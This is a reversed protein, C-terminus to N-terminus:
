PFLRLGSCLADRTEGGRRSMQVECGDEKGMECLQGCGGAREGVQGWEGRRRGRGCGMGAMSGLFAVDCRAHLGVRRAAHHPAAAPNTPTYRDTVWAWPPRADM